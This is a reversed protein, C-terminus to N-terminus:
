FTQNHSTRIQKTSILEEVTTADEANKDWVLQYLAYSHNITSDVSLLYV